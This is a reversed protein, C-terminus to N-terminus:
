HKALLAALDVRDLVEQPIRNRTVGRDARLPRTADIGLKSGFGDPDTCSPDLPTGRVGTVIRVADAPQCQLAMAALVRPLDYPDVDDDVVIVQKSYVDSLMADIL